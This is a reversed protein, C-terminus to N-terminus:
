VSRPGTEAMAVLEVVRRAIYGLAWAAAEQHVLQNTGREGTVMMVM